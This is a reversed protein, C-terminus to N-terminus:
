SAVPAPQGLQAIARDIVARCRGCTPSGQRTMAHGPVSLGCRTIPSGPTWAHDFETWRVVRAVTRNSKPGKRPLHTARPM